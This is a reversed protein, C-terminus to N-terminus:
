SPLTSVVDEIAQLIGIGVLYFTTAKAYLESTQGFETRSQGVTIATAGSQVFLEPLPADYNSRVSEYADLARSEADRMRQRDFEAQDPTVSLESRAFQCGRRWLLARGTDVLRQVDHGRRRGDPGYGYRFDSDYCDAWLPQTAQQYVDTGYYGEEDPTIAEQVDNESPLADISEIFERQADQVSQRVPMTEDGLGDRYQNRYYHANALAQEARLLHSHFQSLDGTTSESSGDFPALFSANDSEVEVFYLSALDRSPNSVPYDGLEDQLRDAESRVALSRERIDDSVTGGLIEKAEGIRSGATALGSTADALRERPVSERRADALWGGAPEDAWRPASGTQSEVRDALREARDVATELRELAADAHSASVPPHWVQEPISRGGEDDTLRSLWGSNALGVGAVGGLALAGGGALLRRRSFDPVM